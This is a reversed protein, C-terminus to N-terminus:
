GGGMFRVLELCDGPSLTTSAFQDRPVIAGNHEVISTASAVGLIDLVAALHCGEPVCRSTGNIMLEITKDM